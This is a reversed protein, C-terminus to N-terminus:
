SRADRRHHNDADCNARIELPTGHLLLELNRPRYAERRLLELDHGALRWTPLAGVRPVTILHADVLTDEIQVRGRLYHLFDRRDGDLRTDLNLDRDRVGGELDLGSTARGM